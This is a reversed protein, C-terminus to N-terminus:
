MSKIDCHGFVLEFLFRQAPQGLQAIRHVAAIADSVVAGVGLPGVVAMHHQRKAQAFGDFAKVGADRSSSAFVGNGPYHVEANRGQKRGVPGKVFQQYTAHRHLVLLVALRHPVEHAKDIPCIRRAIVEPRHLLEGDLPWWVRRGM